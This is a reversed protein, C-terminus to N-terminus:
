KKKGIIPDRLDANLREIKAFADIKNSLNETETVSM